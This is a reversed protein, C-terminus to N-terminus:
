NNKGSTESREIGGCVYTYRNKRSAMGFGELRKPLEPLSPEVASCQTGDPMVVTASKSYGANETYTAVDKGGVIMMVDQVVFTTLSIIGSFM